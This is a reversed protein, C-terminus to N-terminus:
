GLRRIARLQALHLGGHGALLWTWQLANFEGLWPHRHTPGSDEIALPSLLRVTEELFARLDPRADGGTYKGKPKFDEIRVVIDSTRGAALEIVLGRMAAGTMLVHELTENPSWHRSSDEIGKMRPVLVKVDRRDAPIADAEKLLQAGVVTFLRLNAAKDARRSLYPGVYWRVALAELFPLGAGPKDLRPEPMAM